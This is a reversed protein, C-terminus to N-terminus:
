AGGRGNRLTKELRAAIAGVDGAGLTLLVDGQLLLGSLVLELENNNEIFIPDIQNRTRIARCLTRSDAGAIPTEGAGYVDLMLLVDAESLEKAFDDFLEQTRTYRHPQFVMVLRRGPWGDRIAAVAAAVERPHHGYDDVM